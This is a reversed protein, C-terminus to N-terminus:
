PSAPGTSLAVPPETELAAADPADGADVLLDPRSARLRATGDPTVRSGWLYVRRLAPMARLTDVATDDVSSGALILM